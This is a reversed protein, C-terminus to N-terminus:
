RLYKIVMIKTGGLRSKEVTVKDTWQKVILGLGRGFTQLPNLATGNFQNLHTQLQQSDFPQGIKGTDSVAIEIKEPSVQIEIEIQDEKSSSGYNVANSFLEDTVHVLQRQQRTPLGASNLVTKMKERLLSANAFNATFNFRFVGM